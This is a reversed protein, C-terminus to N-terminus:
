KCAHPLELSTVSETSEGERRISTEPHTKCSQEHIGEAKEISVTAVAAVQVVIKADVEHCPRHERQPHGDCTVSRSHSQGHQEEQHEEGEEHQRDM